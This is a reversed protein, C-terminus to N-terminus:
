GPTRSWVRGLGISAILATAGCLVIFPMDGIAIAIILCVWAIAAYIILVSRLALRRRSDASAHGGREGESLAHSRLIFWISGAAGVIAGVVIPLYVPSLKEGQGGDNSTLM